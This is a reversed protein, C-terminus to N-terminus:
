QASSINLGKKNSLFKALLEHRKNVVMAKILIDDNLWRFDRDLPMGKDYYALFDDPRNKIFVFAYVPKAMHFYSLLQQTNASSYRIYRLMSLCFFSIILSLCCIMFSRELWKKLAKSPFLLEGFLEEHKNSFRLQYILLSAVLIFSINPIYPIYDFLIILILINLSIFFFLSFLTILKLLGKLSYLEGIALNRRYFGWQAKM